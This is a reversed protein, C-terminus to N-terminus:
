GILDFGKRKTQKTNRLIAVRNKIPQFQETLRLFTYYDIKGENLMDAYSDPVENLWSQNESM